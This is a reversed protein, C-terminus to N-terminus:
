NCSNLLVAPNEIFSAHTSLPINDLYDLNVQTSISPKIIKLNPNPRLKEFNYFLWILLTM